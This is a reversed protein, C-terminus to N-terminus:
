FVGLQRQVGTLFGAQDTGIAGAFGAQEGHQAPLQHGIGAVAQQRGVPTDGVHTLLDVGEVADSDIVHEIAVQVQALDLLRQGFGFLGVIAGGKRAQM